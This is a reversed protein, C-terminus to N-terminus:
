IRVTSISEMKLACVFFPTKPEFGVFRWSGGERLVVLRSTISNKPPHRGTRNRRACLRCIRPRGRFLPVTVSRFLHFRQANGRKIACPTNRGAASGQAGCLSKHDYLLVKKHTTDNSVDAALLSGGNQEVAEGTQFVAAIVAGTDRDNRRPMLKLDFFGHAPELDQAVEDVAARIHLAGDAHAMGAPRGVARRVVDVGVGVDALVALKGDDVVADDFVIDLELFKQDRLAHGESGFRIGLDHRLQELEVVVLAAVEELGHAAHQAADLAGVRETHEAGITGVADDGRALVRRQQEAEALAAAEERAVRGGDDLVRAVHHIHVVALDGHEGAAADLEVVGHLLGDFLLMVVDLPLDARRLLAAIRVEHELLDHLLGVGQAVGDRRTQAAALDHEVIELERRLFNPAKVADEDDGAARAVVDAHDALVIQLVQQAAINLDRQRALEAVAIGDHVILREDDDDALGAFREVGHRRQALRFLAARVDEGDDVHDARGDGALAVVHEVGPCAGLDGDGGGLRIGRLEGHQIHDAEAEGLDEARHLLLFVGVRHTLKREQGVLHLFREAMALVNLLVGRLVEVVLADEEDAAVEVVREAELARELELLDAVDVGLGVGGALQLVARDREDLVAREDDRQAGVAREKILRHAVDNLDLGAARIHQCEGRLAVAAFHCLGDIM